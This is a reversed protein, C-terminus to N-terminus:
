VEAADPTTTAEPLTAVITFVRDLGTMRFIRLLHEHPTVLILGDGFERLRKQVSVFVGLATSDLSPVETLDAILATAGQDICAHLVQRLQPTTTIDLEGSVTAVIRGPGRTASIQM